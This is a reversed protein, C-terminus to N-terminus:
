APSHVRLVSKKTWVQNSKKNWRYIQTGNPIERKKYRTLHCWPRFVKESHDMTDLCLAQRKPVHWCTSPDCLDGCPLRCNKRSKWTPKWIVSWWYKKIRSKMRKGPENKGCDAKKKACLALKCLVVLTGSAKLVMKWTKERLTLKQTFDQKWRPLSM